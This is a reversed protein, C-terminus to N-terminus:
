GRLFYDLALDYIAERYFVFGKELYTQAIWKKNTQKGALDEAKSVLFYASDINIATEHDILKFLARLRSTDNTAAALRKNLSDIYNTQAKCPCVILILFLGACTWKIFLSMM